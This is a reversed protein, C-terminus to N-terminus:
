PACASTGNAPNYCTTTLTDSDATVAGFWVGAGYIYTHDTGKPWWLGAGINPSERQGFKGFNTICMEIHNINHRMTQFARVPQSVNETYASLFLGISLLALYERM